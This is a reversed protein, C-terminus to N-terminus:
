RIRFVPTALHEDKVGCRREAHYSVQRDLRSAFIGANHFLIGIIGLRQAAEVNEPRDDIFACQSPDLNLRRCALV